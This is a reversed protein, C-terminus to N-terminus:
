HPPQASNATSASRKTKAAKVKIPERQSLILAQPTSRSRVAHKIDNAARGLREDQRPNTPLPNKPQPEPLPQLKQERYHSRSM